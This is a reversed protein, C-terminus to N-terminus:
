KNIYILNGTSGKFNSELWHANEKYSGIIIINKQCYKVLPTIQYKLWDEM